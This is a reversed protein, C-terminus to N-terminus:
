TDTHIAFVWERDPFARSGVKRVSEKLAEVKSGPPMSFVLHVADRSGAGEDFDRSWSNILAKGQDRDLIREGSQTELELAGKRSIYDVMRMVRAKGHGYSAVKVVAQRFGRAVRLREALPLHISLGRGKVRHPQHGLELLPKDEMII